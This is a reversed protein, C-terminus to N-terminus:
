RMEITPDDETTIEVRWDEGSGSRTEGGEGRRGVTGGRRRAEEVGRAGAAERERELWWRRATRAAGDRSCRGEAGGDRM